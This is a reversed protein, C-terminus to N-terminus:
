FAEVRRSPPKERNRQLSIEELEKQQARLLGYRLLADQIYTDEEAMIANRTSTETEVLYDTSRMASTAALRKSSRPVIGKTPGDVEIYEWENEIEDRNNGEQIALRAENLQEILIFDDTNTLNLSNLISRTFCLATGYEQRLAKDTHELLTIRDMVFRKLIDTQQPEDRMAALEDACTKIAEIIFNERKSARVRYNSISPHETADQISSINEQEIIKFAFYYGIYYKLIHFPHTNHPTELLMARGFQTYISQIFELAKAIMKDTDGPSMNKERLLVEIDAQYDRIFGMLKGMSFEDKEDQMSNYDSFKKKLLRLNERKTESLIKDRSVGLLERTQNLLTNDADMSQKIATDIINVLHRKAIELFITNM